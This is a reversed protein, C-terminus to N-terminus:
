SDSITAFISIAGRLSFTGDPTGEHILHKLSCDRGIYKIPGIDASPDSYQPTTESIIINEQFARETGLKESRSKCRLVQTEHGASM